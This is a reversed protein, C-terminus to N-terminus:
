GSLAATRNTREPHFNQSGFLGKRSSDNSATDLGGLLFDKTAGHARDFFHENETAGPRSRLDLQWRREGHGRTRRVGHRSVLSSGSHVSRTIVAVVEATVYQRILRLQKSVLMDYHPTGVSGSPLFEGIRNIPQCAKQAGIGFMSAILHAVDDVRQLPRRLSVLTNEIASHTVPCRVRLVARM